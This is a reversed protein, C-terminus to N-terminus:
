LYEGVSPIVKFDHKLVRISQNACQVLFTNNEVELVKGPEINQFDSSVEEVEWVTNDGGMYEIHAGVYPKTLGRVLNYISYSDM